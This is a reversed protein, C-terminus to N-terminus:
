NEDGNGAIGVIFVDAMENTMKWNENECGGRLGSSWLKVGAWMQSGMHGKGGAWELGM